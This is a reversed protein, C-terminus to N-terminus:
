PSTVIRPVPVVISGKCSTSRGMAKRLSTVARYCVHTPAPSLSASGGSRLFCMLPLRWGDSISQSNGWFHAGKAM